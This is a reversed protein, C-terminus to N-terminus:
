SRRGCPKWNQVVPRLPSRPPAVRGNGYRQLWEAQAHKLAARQADTARPWLFCAAVLLGCGSLLGGGHGISNCSAVGSVGVAVSAWKRTVTWYRWLRGGSTPHGVDPAPGPGRIEAIAAWLQEITVTGVSGTTVIRQGFLRAGTAKEIGCWPCANLRPAHFHSSNQTCPKLSTELEQLKAIWDTASPRARGGAGNSGFAQEFLAAVASGVGEIPLTGPPREMQHMQRGAGYAFRQELIVM